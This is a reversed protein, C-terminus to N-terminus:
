TNLERAEDMLTNQLTPFHPAPIELRGNRVRWGSRFLGRPPPGSARAGDAYYVGGHCPCMFLGSAPFWSVPCGLHACNVGLVLFDPENSEATSQRRVYVANHATMGDWSQGLPNDFTVLRTQDALFDDVSGLDLWVPRRRAAQFFYGVLPIAALVGAALTLLGALWRFLGRRGVAPRALAVPDSNGGQPTMAQAIPPQDGPVDDMM